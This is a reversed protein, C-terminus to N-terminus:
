FTSAKGDAGRPQTPGERKRLSRLEIDEVKRFTSIFKLFQDAHGVLLVGREKRIGFGLNEFIADDKFDCRALFVRKGDIGGVSDFIGALYAAAYENHHKFKDVADEQVQKFYTKYASHFFRVMKDKVMLKDPTAINADMAGKAFAQMLADSGVVGVGDRVSAYKTIGAIYALQPTLKVKM